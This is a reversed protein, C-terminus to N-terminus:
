VPAPRVGETDGQQQGFEEAQSRAKPAQGGLSELGLGCWGRDGFSLGAQGGRGGNGAVRSAGVEARAIGEPGDGM